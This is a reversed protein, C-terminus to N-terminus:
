CSVDALEIPIVVYKYKSSIEQFEHGEIKAAVRHGDSM